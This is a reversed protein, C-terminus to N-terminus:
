PHKIKPSPDVSGPMVGNTSLEEILAAYDKSAGEDTEWKVSVQAGVLDEGLM